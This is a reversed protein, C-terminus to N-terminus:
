YVSIAMRRKVINNCSYVKLKYKLLGFYSITM